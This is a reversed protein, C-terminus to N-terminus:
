IDRYRGPHEQRFKALQDRYLRARTAEDGSQQPQYPWVGARSLDFYLKNLSRVHVIDKPLARGTRQEFATAIKQRIFPALTRNFCVAAIRPRRQTADFLTRTSEALLRKARRALNNALV